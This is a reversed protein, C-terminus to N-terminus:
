VYPKTVLLRHDPGGVCRILTTSPKGIDRFTDPIWYEQRAQWYDEWSISSATARSSYNQHYEIVDAPTDGRWHAAVDVVQVNKRNGGADAHQIKVAIDGSTYTQGDRRTETKRKDKMEHVYGFNIGANRNGQVVYIVFDGVSVEVERCDKLTIV